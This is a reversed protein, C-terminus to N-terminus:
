EREIKLWTPEYLEQLLDELEFGIGLRDRYKGDYYTYVDTDTIGKEDDYM